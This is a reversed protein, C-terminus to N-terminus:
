GGKALSERITEVVAGGNLRTRSWGSPQPQIVPYERYASAVRRGDLTFVVTKCVSTGLDVGLIFPAGADM